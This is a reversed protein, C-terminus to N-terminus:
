MGAEGKRPSLALACILRYLGNVALPSSQDTLRKAPEAQWSRADLSPPNSYFPAPLQDEQNFM